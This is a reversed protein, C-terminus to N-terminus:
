QGYSNPGLLRVIRGYQSDNLYISLVAVGPWNVDLRREVAPGVVIGSGPPNEWIVRPQDGESKKDLFALHSSSFALALSRNAVKLADIAALAQPNKVQSSIKITGPKEQQGRTIGFEDALYRGIGIVIMVPFLVIYGVIKWPTWAITTNRGPTFILFKWRKFSFSDVPERWRQGLFARFKIEVTAGAPDTADM